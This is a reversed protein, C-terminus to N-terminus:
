ATIVALLCIVGGAVTFGLAQRERQEIRPSAELFTYHTMPTHKARRLYYWVIYDRPQRILPGSPGGPAVSYRTQGAPARVAGQGNEEAVRYAAVRRRSHYNSYVIYIYYTM